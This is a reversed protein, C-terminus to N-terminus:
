IENVWLNDTSSKVQQNNIIFHSQQCPTAARMLRKLKSGLVPLSDTAPSLPLTLRGYKDYRAWAQHIGLTLLRLDQGGHYLYIRWWPQEKHGPNTIWPPWLFAVTAVTALRTLQLAHVQVRSPIHFSFLLISLFYFFWSFNIGPVGSALRYSLM